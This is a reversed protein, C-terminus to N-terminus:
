MRKMIEDLPLKAWIGRSLAVALAQKYRKTINAFDKQNLFPQIIQLSVAPESKAPCSLPMELFSISCTVKKRTAYMTFTAAVLPNTQLEQITASKFALCTMTCIAPMGPVTIVNVHSGTLFGIFDKKLIEELVQPWEPQEFLGQHNEIRIQLPTTQGRIPKPAFDLPGHESTLVKHMAKMAAQANLRAENLVDKDEIAYTPAPIGPASTILVPAKHVTNLKFFDHGSNARVKGQSQVQLNTGTDQASPGKGWRKGRATENTCQKTIDIWENPTGMHNKDEPGGNDPGDFFEM